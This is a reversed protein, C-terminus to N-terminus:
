SFHRLVLNMRRSEGHDFSDAQDMQRGQSLRKLMVAVAIILEEVSTDTLVFQFRREIQNVIERLRELDISEFHRQINM